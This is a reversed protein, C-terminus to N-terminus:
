RTYWPGRSFTNSKKSGSPNLHGSRLPTASKRCSTVERFSWCTRGMQAGQKEFSIGEARQKCVMAHKYGLAHECHTSCATVPTLSSHAYVM